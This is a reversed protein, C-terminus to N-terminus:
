DSTDTKALVEAIGTYDAPTLVLLKHKEDEPLDLENIFSEIEGRTVPVGRTLEKLKEYPLEGGHKRLVTQVAESLVEWSHDLDESIKEQNM